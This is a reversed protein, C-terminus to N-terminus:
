VGQPSFDKNIMSVLKQVKREMTFREFVRERARKGTERCRDRDQLLAQIFFEFKTSDGVPVLYGNVGHDIVDSAGGVDFSVIPLSLLQAELFVVPFAESYSTLVMIDSKILLFLCDPRSLQGTFIVSDILGNKEAYTTLKGRQDGDGIILVHLDPVTKKLNALCRITFIQNKNEDLTGIQIITPKEAVKQSIELAKMSPTYTKLNEGYASPIANWVTEASYNPLEKRMRETLRTFVSLYRHAKNRHLVPMLFNLFRNPPEFYSAGPRNLNKDTHLTSYIIPVGNIVGLLRGFFLASGLGETMVIDYKGKVITVLLLIAKTLRSSKLLRSTYRKESTLNFFLPGGNELDTFAFVEAKFEEPLCSILDLLQQEAGRKAWTNCIFLIRRNTVTM